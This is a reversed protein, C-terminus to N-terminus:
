ESSKKKSGGFLKRFFNGVKKKPVSEPVNDVYDMDESDENATTESNALSIQLIELSNKTDSLKSNTFLKEDDSQEASAVTAESLVAADSQDAQENYEEDNSVELTYSDSTYSFQNGEDSNQESVGGTAHVTVEIVNENVDSENESFNNQSTAEKSTESEQCQIELSYPITVPEDYDYIVSGTSERALSLQRREEELLLKELTNKSTSKRQAVDEEDNKTSDDLPQSNLKTGLGFTGPRSKVAHVTQQKETGEQDEM